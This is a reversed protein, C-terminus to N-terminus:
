AKTLDYFKLVLLASDFWRVAINSAFSRRSFFFKFFIFLEDATLSLNVCLSCALVAGSLSSPLVSAFGAFLWNLNPVMYVVVVQFFFHIVNQSKKKINEEAASPLVFMPILPEVWIWVINDNPKQTCTRQNKDKTSKIRQSYCNFSLYIYIHILYIRDRSKRTHTHKAKASSWRFLLLLFHDIRKKKSTGSDTPNKERRWKWLMKKENRNSVVCNISHVVKECECISIPFFLVHEFRSRKIWGAFFTYNFCKKKIIMTM